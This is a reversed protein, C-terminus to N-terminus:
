SCIAGVCEGLIANQVLYVRPTVTPIPVLPCYDAISNFDITKQVLWRIKRLHGFLFFSTETVGCCDVKDTVTM